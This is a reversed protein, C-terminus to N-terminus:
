TQETYVVLVANGLSDEIISIINQPWIPMIDYAVLWTSKGRPLSVPTNLEKLFMNIMNFPTLYHSKKGESLFIEHRHRGWPFVVM